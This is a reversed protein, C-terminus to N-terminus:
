CLDADLHSSQMHAPTELINGATLKQGPMKHIQDDATLIQFKPDWAIVQALFQNM